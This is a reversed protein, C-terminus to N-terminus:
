LEVKCVVDYRYEEKVVYGTRKQNQKTVYSGKRHKREFIFSIYGKDKLCKYGNYRNEKKCGNYFYNNWKRFRCLRRACIRLRKGDKINIVEKHKFDMGKQGM